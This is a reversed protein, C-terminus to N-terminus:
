GGGNLTYNFRLVGGRNIVEIAEEVKDGVAVYAPALMDRIKLAPINSSWLSLGSSNNSSRYGQSGQNALADFAEIEQTIGRLLSNWSHEIFVRDNRSYYAQPLGVHNAITKYMFAAKGNFSMCLGTHIAKKVNRKVTVSMLSFDVYETVEYRTYDDVGSFTDLHGANM